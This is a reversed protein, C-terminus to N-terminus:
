RTGVGAFEQRDAEGASGDRDGLSSSCEPALPRAKTRRAPGPRGTAPSSTVGERDTEKQALGMLLTVDVNSGSVVVAVNEGTRELRGTLLAAMGVAAGGEVVLHHRELAFVMADAIEAESVLVFDDVYEQVMRFTYRNELGLSGVLADALTEEEAMRIPAGAKLSHYMVPARDMSVGVVRIGKRACKLALAIGSILGGGGVPVLVTDIEPLDELLELGVTGQGAIVYPDDYPNVMTLGREEGLRFAEDEAEDYSRGAVLIRGGLRRIGEVKHAPTGEPICVLAQVGLRGAVYSVARGHNGTSITIVGRSRQEGSLTLMKNAAGRIKFSGTEQLSELKLYVSAGVREGLLPSYVLPTKRALPAIRRRALYLDRMTVDRAYM